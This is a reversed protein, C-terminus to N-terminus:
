YRQYTLNYLHVYLAYLLKWFAEFESKVVGDLKVPDEDDTWKPGLADSITSQIFHCKLVVFQQNEVQSPILHTVRWSRYVHSNYGVEFIATDLDRLPGKSSEITPVVQSARDVPQPSRFEATLLCHKRDM